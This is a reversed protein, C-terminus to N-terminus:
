SGRREEPERLPMSAALAEPTSYVPAVATEEIWRRAHQVWQEAQHESPRHAAFKVADADRLLPDIAGVTAHEHGAELLRDVTEGTTWDLAPVRFRGGVYARLAHSAEVYFEDFRGADIWGSGSLEDLRRLAVVHPPELAEAPLSDDRGRRRNWWWWVIPLLVLLLLLATPWWNPGLDGVRIWPRLSDPTAQALRPQVTWRLTDGTAPLAIAAEGVRVVVVEFRRPDDTARLILDEARPWETSDAPATELLLTAREGLQPEGPELTAGGVARGSGLLVLLLVLGWRRTM